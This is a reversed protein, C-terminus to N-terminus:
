ERVLKRIIRNTGITLEVLYIGKPYSELDLNLNANLSSGIRSSYLTKGLIDLVRIQMKNVENLEIDVHVVSSAPNPYISVNGDFQNLEEIGVGTVEYSDSLTKCNNTGTAEVTYSGNETFTYSQNNSNPLASGNLFWEYGSFISTTRLDAGSLIIVPKPVSIVDIKTSSTGECGNGDTGTVTYTTTSNPAVFVSAGSGGSNDWDYTVAGGATLEISDGDCIDADVSSTIVPLAHVTIEVSDKAVCGNTTGTLVYTDDTTPSVSTNQFPGIGHDWEYTTAGSGQLLVTSGLCIDSPGAAIVMPSPNVTLYITIISDCLNSGTVTDSYTNSTSWSKGSPSILSDCTTIAVTDYSVSSLNVTIVSDCGRSNTITDSYIGTATWTYKTSPSTIGACNFTDLTAYTRGYVTLEIRIVSDCNVSNTLTDFYVGTTDFVYNGSPSTYSSDCTTIIPYITHNTSQLITLNIVMLSDCGAKNPITDFYTGNTTYTSNGSPVIYQDCAIVDITDRTKAIVTIYKVLTDSESTDSAILTVAFVGSSDFLIPGPNQVTDTSPNAGEFTWKWHSLGSGLSLDTFILGENQCIEFSSTTFDAFVVTDACSVVEAGGSGTTVVRSRFDLDSEMDLNPDNVASPATSVTFSVPADNCGSNGGPDTKVLYMDNGGNGFSTTWGTLVYGGDFTTDISQGFDSGAGGYTKAWEITASSDMKIVFAASSGAGLSTYGTLVFGGDGTLQIGTGQDNGTSGITKSWIENGSPNLKVLYIDYSGSGFSTTRGVILYDGEATQQVGYATEYGAGGYARTWLTDGTSTTKIMLMDTNNSTFRPTQEGVVIYGGDSTQKVDYGVEEDYDDYNRTWLTDGSSNTKILCLGYLSASGAKGTFMYGGDSTQIVSNGVDPVTFRGYAKVWVPSGVSNVKLAYVDDADKNKRGTIIYGGDSTQKVDGLEENYTTGYTKTWSINGESNVKVLYVDAQGAGNSYTTGGMIYGGDSTHQVAFGRDTGSGGYSKQFVTQAHVTIFMGIILCSLILLRISYKM